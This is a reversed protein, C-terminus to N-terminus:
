NGGVSERLALHLLKAAFPMNFLAYNATVLQSNIFRSLAKDHLRPTQAQQGTKFTDAM